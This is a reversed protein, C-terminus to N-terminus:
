GGRVAERDSGKGWGRRPAMLAHRNGVRGEGNVPCPARAGDLRIAFTGDRRAPQAMRLRSARM